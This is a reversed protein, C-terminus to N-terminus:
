KKEITYGEKTNKVVYGLENLEARIADAVPWNKELRASQMEEAKKIIEEPIDQKEEQIKDFDLGFVQDFKELTEMRDAEEKQVRLVETFTKIVAQTMGKTLM